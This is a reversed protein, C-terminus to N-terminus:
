RGPAYAYYAAAALLIVGLLVPLYLKRPLNRPDHDDTIGAGGRRRVLPPLSGGKAVYLLGLAVGVCLLPLARHGDGGSGGARWAYMGLAALGLTLVLAAVRKAPWGANPGDRVM